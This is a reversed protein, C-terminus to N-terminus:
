APLSRVVYDLNAMWDELPGGEAGWPGLYRLVYFEDPRCAVSKVDM